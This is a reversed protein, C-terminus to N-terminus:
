NTNNEEPIAEFVFSFYRRNDETFTYAYVYVPFKDRGWRLHCREVGVSKGEFLMSISKKLMEHCTVDFVEQLYRGVLMGSKKLGLINEVPETVYIIREGEAVIVGKPSTTLIGKQVVQLYQLNSMDGELKVKEEEATKLKETLGKFISNYPDEILAQILAVFLFVYSIFHVIHGLFNSSDYVTIYLVFILSTISKLVMSIILLNAKDQLFKHRSNKYYLFAIVLFLVCTVYESYVKFRTLGEGEIFADPFIDFTFISLMILIFIVFNIIFLKKVNVKKHLYRFSLLLFFIGFFRQALWLQTPINSDTTIINIGKYTFLHFINILAVTGYTIGMFTFYDNDSIRDTIYAIMFLGLGAVVIMLELLSHFLLFNQRAIFTFIISSIICSIIIKTLTYRSKEQYM